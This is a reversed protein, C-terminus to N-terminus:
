SAPRRVRQHPGADDPQEGILENGAAGAAHKIKAPALRADAVFFKVARNQRVVEFAVGAGVLFDALNAFFQFQERGGELVGLDNRSAQM